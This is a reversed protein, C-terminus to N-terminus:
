KQSELLGAIKDAADLAARLNARDAASLNLSVSDGDKERIWITEFGGGGSEEDCECEFELEDFESYLHIRIGKM